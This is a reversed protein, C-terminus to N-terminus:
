PCRRPRFCIRWIKVLTIIIRPFGIGIRVGIGIGLVIKDSISLGGGTHTSTTSSSPSISQSATTPSSKDSSVTIGGSLVSSPNSTATTGRSSVSSPNSTAATPSSPVDVARWRLPIASALLTHDTSSFQTSMSGLYFELGTGTRTLVASATLAGLITKSCSHYSSFGPYRFGSPCCFGLIERNSTILVGGTSYGSPYIIGPSFYNDYDGFYGFNSPYCLTVQNSVITLYTEVFTLGVGTVEEIRYTAPFAITSFCTSPPTFTTTLPGLNNNAITFASLISYLYLCYLRRAHAM